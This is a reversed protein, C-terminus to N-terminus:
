SAEHIAYQLHKSQNATPSFEESFLLINAPLLELVFFANLNLFLSTIESSLYYKLFCIQKGCIM